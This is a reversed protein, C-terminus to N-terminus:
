RRPVVAVVEATVDEIRQAVYREFLQRERVQFIQARRHALAGARVPKM